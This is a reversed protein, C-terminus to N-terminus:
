FCAGNRGSQIKRRRSRMPRRIHEFPKKGGALLASNVVGPLDLRSTIEFKLTRNGKDSVESKRSRVESVRLTIGGQDTFKVANGLLNILVQRLKNEDTAVYRPLDNIGIIEFHLGRSDTSSDFMKELDRLMARLDFTTSEFTTQGAEIKSIELVDNILALLHEGSLSIIDLHKHHESPLSADRQMLESYGLIANMPTRLEHSMSALFDGKAKNAAEAQVLAAKLEATREQVL